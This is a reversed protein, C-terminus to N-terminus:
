KLDVLRIYNKIRNEVKTILVKYLNIML